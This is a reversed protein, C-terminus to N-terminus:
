TGKKLHEHEISLAREECKQVKSHRAQPSFLHGLGYQGFSALTRVSPRVMSSPTMDLHTAPWPLGSWVTSRLPQRSPHGPQGEYDLSIATVFMANCDDGVSRGFDGM